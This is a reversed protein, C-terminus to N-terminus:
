NHSYFLQELVHYNFINFNQPNKYKGVFQIIAYILKETNMCIILESYKTRFTQLEFYFICLHTVIKFNSLRLM